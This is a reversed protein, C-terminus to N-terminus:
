PWPIVVGSRHTCPCLPTPWLTLNADRSPPRNHHLLSLSYVPQSLQPLAATHDVPQPRTSPMYPQPHFHGHTGLGSSRPHALDSTAIHHALEASSLSLHTQACVDVCVCGRVCWVGGGGRWESLCMSTIIVICRSLTSRSAGSPQRGWAGLGVWVWVRVKFPRDQAVIHSM